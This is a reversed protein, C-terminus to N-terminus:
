CFEGFESMARALDGRSGRAVDVAETFTLVVAVDDSHMDRMCACVADDNSDLGHAGDTELRVVAECLAAAKRAARGYRLVSEITTKRTREEAM